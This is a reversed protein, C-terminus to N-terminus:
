IKIPEFNIVCIYIIREDRRQLSKRMEERSARQLLAIKQVNRNIELCHATASSINSNCATLTWDKQPQSFIAMERRTGTTPAVGPRDSGPPNPPPASVRM